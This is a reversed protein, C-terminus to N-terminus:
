IVWYGFPSHALNSTRFLYRVAEPARTQTPESVREILLTQVEIPRTPIPQYLQIKFARLPIEFFSLM